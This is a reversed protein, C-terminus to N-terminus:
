VNTSMKSKWKHLGTSWRPTKLCKDMGCHLWARPNIDQGHGNRMHQVCSWAEQSAPVKRVAELQGVSKQGLHGPDKSTHGMSEWSSLSLTVGVARTYPTQGMPHHLCVSIVQTIDPPAEDPSRTPFGPIAASPILGCRDNPGRDMAM